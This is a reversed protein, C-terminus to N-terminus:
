IKEAKTVFLLVDTHHHGNQASYFSGKIKIKKNVFPHLNVPLHPALQFRTINKVTEDFGGSVDSEKSRQVVNIPGAPYFIYCYEKEDTEPSEGFGPPGYYMEVKLNGTLVSTDPEFYYDPESITSSVLVSDRVGPTKGKSIGEGSSGAPMNNGEGKINFRYLEIVLSDGHILSFSNSNVETEKNTKESFSREDQLKLSKYKVHKEDYEDKIELSFPKYGKRSIELIQPSGFYQLRFRGAPNTLTSCGSKSDKVLVSDVPLKTEGDIIVGITRHAVQDMCGFVGALLIFLLIKHFGVQM